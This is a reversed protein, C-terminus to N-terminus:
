CQTTLVPPRMILSTNIDKATVEVKDEVMGKAKDEVMGKTKDEVTGEVMGKTMGVKIRISRTKIHINSKGNDMLFISKRGMFPGTIM